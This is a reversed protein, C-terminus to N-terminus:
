IVRSGLRSGSRGVHEPGTWWHVVQCWPPLVLVWRACDGDQKSGCKGALAKNAEAVVWGARPYVERQLNFGEGYKTDYLLFRRPGGNGPAAGATCSTDGVACNDGGAPAPAPGLGPCTSVCMALQVKYEADYCMCSPQDRVLAHSPLESCKKGGLTTKVAEGPVVGECWAKRCSIAQFYRRTPLGLPMELVSHSSLV